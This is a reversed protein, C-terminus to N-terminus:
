SFSIFHISSTHLIEEVMINEDMFDKNVRARSYDVYHNFLTGTFIAVAQNEKAALDNEDFGDHIEVLEM